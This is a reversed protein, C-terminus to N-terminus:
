AVAEQQNSNIEQLQYECGYGQQYSESREQDAPKGERCDLQGAIFDFTDYKDINMARGRAAM